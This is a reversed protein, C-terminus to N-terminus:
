ASKPLHRSLRERAAELADYVAIEARNRPPVEEYVECWSKIIQYQNAPTVDADLEILEAVALNLFETVFSETVSM